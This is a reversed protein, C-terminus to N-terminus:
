QFPNGLPSTIDLWLSTVLIAVLIAVAGAALPMLKGVDAHYRRGRRSRIREYTAIAVHGGDLPLLPVLNFVGMFVNLLVLLSLFTYAGAEGAQGAVRVGGVVSLFRVTPEGPAPAKGALQEGYARLSSPSFFSGLSQVSTKVLTVMGKGSRGAATLPDTRETAPKPGIGVFGVPEGNPNANAPTVPLSLERGGREVVFTITQGPRSRIYPPLDAWSNVAQGDVSVVRDGVRLGAEQAPSPGTELRSITAIQNTARDFDPVGVVTWLLVLLLYAVVFHTAVGALTVLMRRPYSQQRYTRPEDAPDVNRELNSMGLIKVYGGAPIAKVGYTTEGRQVAWLKPGFGVFFETAKMGSWRATVLHGAEHLMVSTILALVFAVAYFAGVAVSIAVVAVLGGALAAPRKWGSRGNAAPGPPPRHPTASDTDTDTHTM